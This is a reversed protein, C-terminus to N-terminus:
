ETNNIILYTSTNKNLRRPFTCADVPIESVTQIQICKTVLFLQVSEAVEYTM